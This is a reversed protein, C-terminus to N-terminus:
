LTLNKFSTPDEKDKCAQDIDYKTTRNVAGNIRLVETRRYRMAEETSFCGLCVATGVGLAVYTITKEPNLMSGNPMSDDLM